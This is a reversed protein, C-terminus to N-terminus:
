EARLAKIPDISTARLAPVYSALLAAAILGCSVAIYTLPDLPSIDFLMTSMVRTVVSAAALGLVIGTLALVAGHRVFMRTVEAHQAGLAMRIGIERTRQSVAYAIVGYLGAIGLLLAMGGAIALMVLTFSTRALSKDYVEQLTRVDALPLNPNISWVAQSVEKLLGPSGARPSRIMYCLTRKVFHDGGEFNEMRIPYIVATPPKQDVGDFREDGIVAIVERWANKSSERVRKGLASAPDHWLERALNDTVMVVPRAADIEAWTFDRGAILRNGMTRLLGPTAFKFLRIPPLTGEAYVHDEAYIPDHWGSGSMPVDGALSVSTVGAITGIKDAIAKHMQVVADPEKVTIDPLSLRLTLLHEPDTFGPEVQRLAQFTRIMLGASILLVLTLAVQTIVLTNRARHREKSASVARGESRLATNIQAGAFKFVPIAGFLLGALLSIAGTFLLVTTDIGIAELRPLHAPALSILIRLAGYAVALGLAGGLCGLVVSELLLECALQGRNAGLAARIALEHQRGEVRVLLLNAVNACAILLVLGVTGMLVWLVTAISGTLYEKLPQVLPGIRAETFMKLSFGPPPPYRTLSLAIMRTADARAQEITVGPNLRALGQYNFQGLFIKSRDLRVPLLVSPKRDLFQFTAPLVGIIEYPTGDLRLMQGVASPNGGFRAQWYAYTLLVTNPAGPSDDKPTFVRGLSAPVGLIPLFGETVHLSPVEEPEALGTVSVTETNWMAVDQFVRKEDRYTLYLFAATGLEPINVGPAVHNMAVLQDPQRFSLPKLLVGELVSFIATNAGIGLALTTVTLATFMPLRILRKFVVKLGM